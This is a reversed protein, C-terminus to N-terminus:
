SKATAGKELNTLLESRDAGGEIIGAERYALLLAGIAPDFRPRVIQAEPLHKNLWREFVDRVPAGRFVGGVTAIRTESPALRLRGTLTAVLYALFEGGRRVIEQAAVDGGSAAEQVLAAFKALRDRTIEDRYVTM